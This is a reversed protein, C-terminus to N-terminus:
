LLVSVKIVHTYWKMNNDLNNNEAKCAIRFYSQYGKINGVNM